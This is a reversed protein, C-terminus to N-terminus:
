VSGGSQSSRTRARMRFVMDLIGTVILPLALAFGLVVVAVYLAALLMARFPHGDLLGHLVALGLVAFAASMGGAFAGGILGLSDPLLAAASAAVLGVAAIRPFALAGFRPLPRATIRLRAAITEVLRFNVFTSLTWGMAAAAPLISAFLSRM